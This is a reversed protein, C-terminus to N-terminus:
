SMHGPDITGLRRLYLLKVIRSFAAGKRREDEKGSEPLSDLTKLRVFEMMMPQSVVVNVPANPPETPM